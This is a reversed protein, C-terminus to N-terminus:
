KIVKIKVLQEGTIKKGRIEYTNQKKILKKGNITITNKTEDIVEGEIGINPKHTSDIIKIKEGILRM